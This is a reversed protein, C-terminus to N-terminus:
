RRAKRAVRRLRQVLAVGDRLTAEGAADPTLPLLLADDELRAGRTGGLVAILQEALANDSLIRRALYLDRARGALARELADTPMKVPKGAGDPAAGAALALGGLDTGVSLTAAGEDFRADLSVTVGDVEGSRPRASADVGLRRALDDWPRAQRTAAAEVLAALQTLRALALEPRFRPTETPDLTATATGPGWTFAVRAEVLDRLAAHVGADGLLARTAPRDDGAVTLAEDLRADGTGIGGRGSYRPGSRRDGAAEVRLGRPMPAARRAQLLVAIEGAEPPREGSALPAWVDPEV